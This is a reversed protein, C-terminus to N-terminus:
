RALCNTTYPSHNLTSEPTLSEINTIPTHAEYNAILFPHSTNTTFTEIPHITHTHSTTQQPPSSMSAPPHPPVIPVFVTVPAHMSDIKCQTASNNTPHKESM